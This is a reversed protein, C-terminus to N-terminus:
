GVMKQLGDNQATDVETTGVDSTVVVKTSDIAQVAATEREGFLM